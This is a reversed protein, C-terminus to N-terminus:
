VFFPYYLLFFLMNVLQLFLFYDVNKNKKNYDEIENEEEIEDNDFEM